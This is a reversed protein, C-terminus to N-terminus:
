HVLVEEVEIINVDGEQNIDTLKVKRLENVLVPDYKASVKIYNRTFGNMIGEKSDAEFLVEQTKGLHQEYFNRRKKESLIHLM